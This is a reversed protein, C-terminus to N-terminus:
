VLDPCSDMYVSLITDQACNRRLSPCGFSLEFRLVMADVDFKTFTEDVDVTPEIYNLILYYSHCNILLLGM